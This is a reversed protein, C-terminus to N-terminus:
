GAADFVAIQDQNNGIRTAVFVGGGPAPAIAGLPGGVEGFTNHVVREAIPHTRATDLFGSPIAPLAPFGVGAPLPDIGAYAPDIAATEPLMTKLPLM